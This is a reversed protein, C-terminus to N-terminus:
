TVAIPGNNTGSIALTHGEMAESFANAAICNPLTRTATVGGTTMTIIVKFAWIDTNPNTTQAAAFPTGARRQLFDQLRNNTAHTQAENRLQVNVSWEQELDDTEVHGDYAGRDLVRVKETNEANTAGHSFDGPGPGVTMGLGAADEFRVTTRRSNFRSM